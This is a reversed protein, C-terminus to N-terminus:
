KKSYMKRRISLALEERKMSLTPNFRRSRAVKAHTSVDVCARDPDVPFRIVSALVSRDKKGKAVEDDDVPVDITVVRGEKAYEPKV